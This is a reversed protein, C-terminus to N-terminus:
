PPLPCAVTEEVALKVIAKELLLVSLHLVQWGPM